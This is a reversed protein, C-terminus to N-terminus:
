PQRTLAIAHPDVVVRGNVRFWEQSEHREMALVCERVFDLFASRVQMTPQRLDFTPLLTRHNIDIELLDDHASRSDVTHVKIELAGDHIAFTVGPRYTVARLWTELQSTLDREVGQMM